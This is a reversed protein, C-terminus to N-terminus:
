KSKAIISFSAAGAAKARLMVEMVLGQKADRDCAIIVTKNKSNLSSSIKGFVEDIKIEEKGLFVTNDHTITLTIQEEIQVKEAKGEVLNVSIGEFKQMSLSALMFTVLLFFMVDIMPIIEIRGKKAQRNRKIKM